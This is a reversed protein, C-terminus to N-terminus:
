DRRYSVRLIANHKAAVVMALATIYICCPCYFGQADVDKCQVMPREIISQAARAWFRREERDSKFLSM